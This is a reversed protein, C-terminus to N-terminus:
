VKDEPDLKAVKPHIRVNRGIRMVRIRKDAIMRRISRPSVQWVDALQDVTMFREFREEDASHSCGTHRSIVPRDPFDDCDPM